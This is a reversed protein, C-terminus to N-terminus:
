VQWELASSLESAGLRQLESLRLASLSMYFTMVLFSGISCVTSRIM